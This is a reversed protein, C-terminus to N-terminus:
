HPCRGEGNRCDQLILNLAFTSKGSGIAGFSALAYERDSEPIVAEEGTEIDTGLTSYIKSYERPASSPTSHGNQHDHSTKLALILPLARKGTESGYIEALRIILNAHHHDFLGM